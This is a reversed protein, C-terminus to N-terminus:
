AGGGAGAGLTGSDAVTLQIGPLWVCVCMYVCVGVCMCVCICVCVCVRGESFHRKLVERLPAESSKIINETLNVDDEGKEKRM